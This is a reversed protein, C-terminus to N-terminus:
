RLKASPCFAAVVCRDCQPRRAVCVQRGHEIFLHPLLIWVDCPVLRNLDQEIKEPTQAATLKLLRSLRTVHTDVVVGSAVGFANGMVVNATKRGVGPLKVLADVDQPVKGGHEAVLAQALAVINKAKNHYFGTSRILAEVDSVKAQAFAGITSFKKFLAPTVMNVRKDTCQASLVTAVLLEFANRHTLACHANPYQQILRGIIQVLRKKKVTQSERAM